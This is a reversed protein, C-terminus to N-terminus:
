KHERSDRQLRLVRIAQSLKPLDFPKQLVCFGEDVAQQAKESYGTALLIPVEAHHVRVIRALELGAVSGPMLLDSLVLEYSGAEKLRRLAEGANGARDVTYGLQQLYDAAVAAVEDSDEVLLATGSEKPLAEATKALAQEQVSANTSPLYLCVSTGHGPKSDITALGGSQKAFGYVQSLGL